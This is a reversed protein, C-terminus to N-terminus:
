RQFVFFSMKCPGCEVYVNFNWLQGKFHGLDERLLNVPHKSRAFKKWARSDEQEISVFSHGSNDTDLERVFLLGSPWFISILCRTKTYIKRDWICALFKANDTALIARWWLKVDSSLLLWILTALGVTLEPWGM